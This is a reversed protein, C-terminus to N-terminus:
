REVGMPWDGIIGTEVLEALKEDSHGLMTGLIEANHEGLTPAPMRVWSAVSAYRFPLTPTPHTGVVPHDVMECYGRFENQPHGSSRRNDRTEAAPVGAAVLADVAAPLEQTAAWEGILVDLRDHSRRRDALTKLTPDDALEPRGIVSALAAWQEDTACSVALWNEFGKCAYLNQPAAYPSRNGEREVRLHHASWEIVPEAAVSVAAEFMPAEILCGEGTRDRHQLGVLAGFAAHLGGNPDCPGRQIRPQDEPHGTMWALGTIQEMTQAFGPRDRWPGDLGFAPMRVMVARPNVKQIVDWDLDFAEVV